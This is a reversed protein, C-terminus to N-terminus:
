RTITAPGRDDERNNPWAAGARYGASRRDCDCRESIEGPARSRSRFFDRRSFNEVFIERRNKIRPPRSLSSPQQPLQPFLHRLENDARALFRPDEPVGMIAQAVCLTVVEADTVRRRADDPKCPLLDDAM